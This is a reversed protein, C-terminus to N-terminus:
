GAMPPSGHGEKLFKILARSVTGQPQGCMFPQQPAVELCGSHSGLRCIRVVNHVNRGLVPRTPGTGPRM